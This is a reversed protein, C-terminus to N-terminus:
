AIYIYIDKCNDRNCEVANFKGIWENGRVLTNNCYSLIIKSAEDVTASPSKFIRNNSFTLDACSFAYLM